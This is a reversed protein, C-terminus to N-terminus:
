PWDPGVPPVGDRVEVVRNRSGSAIREPLADLPHWAAAIIERGDCRPEGTGEAVFISIHNRAGRATELFAGHLRLTAVAIGTEERVERAAAVSPDEGRKVGGGPLMWLEPSAYSHRILLVTRGPGLVVVKAGHVHPRAIRWWLMRLAQAFRYVIHLLNSGM